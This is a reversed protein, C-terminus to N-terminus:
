TKLNDLLQEFKTDISDVEQSGGQAFDDRGGGSGDLCENVEKIISKASLNKNNDATM